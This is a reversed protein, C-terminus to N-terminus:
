SKPALRNDGEGLGDGKSSGTVTASGQEGLGDGRRFTARASGALTASGTM